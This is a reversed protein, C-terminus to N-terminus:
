HVPLASFRCIKESEEDWLNLKGAATMGIHSIGLLKNFKRSLAVKVPCHHAIGDGVVVTGLHVIVHM